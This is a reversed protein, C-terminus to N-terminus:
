LGSTQRGARCPRCMINLCSESLSVILNINRPDVPCLSITISPNTFSLHSSQLQRGRVGSSNSQMLLLWCAATSRISKFPVNISLSVAVPQIFTRWCRCMLSNDHGESSLILHRNSKIVRRLRLLKVNNRSHRLCSLWPWTASMISVPPSNTKVCDNHQQLNLRHEDYSVSIRHLM